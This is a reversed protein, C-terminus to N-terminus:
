WERRRAAKWDGRVVGGGAGAAEAVAGVAGRLTEDEYGDADGEEGISEDVADQDWHQGKQKNILTM